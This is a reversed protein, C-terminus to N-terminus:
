ADCDALLRRAVWGERIRGPATRVVTDYAAGGPAHRVRTWPGPPQADFVMLEDGARMHRVLAADARPADRLAM